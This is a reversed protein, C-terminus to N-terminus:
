LGGYSDSDTLLRNTTRQEKEKTNVWEKEIECLIKPLKLHFYSTCEINIAKFQKGSCERLM